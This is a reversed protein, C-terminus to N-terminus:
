LHDLVLWPFSLQGGSSLNLKQYRLAGQILRNTYTKEDTINYRNVRYTDM